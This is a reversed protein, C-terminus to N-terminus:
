NKRIHGRTSVGNQGVKGFPNRCSFNKGSELRRSEGTGVPTLSKALHTLKSLIIMLEDVDIKVFEVDTYKSAYEQITPEMSRCPACWSASFDIVM